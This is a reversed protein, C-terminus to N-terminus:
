KTMEVKVNTIALGNVLNLFHDELLRKEIDIRLRDLNKSAPEM